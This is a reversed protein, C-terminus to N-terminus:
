VEELRSLRFEREGELSARVIGPLNLESKPDNDYALVASVVGLRYATFERKTLGAPPELLSQKKKLAPKNKM